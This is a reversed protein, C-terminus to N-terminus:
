APDLINRAQELWHDASVCMEPESYEICTNVYDAKLYGALRAIREETEIDAQMVADHVGNFFGLNYNSAGPQLSRFSERYTNRAYTLMQALTM